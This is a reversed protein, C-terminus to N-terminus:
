FPLMGRQERCEIDIGLNSQTWRTMEPFARQRTMGAAALGNIGFHMGERLMIEIAPWEGDYSAAPYLEATPLGIHRAAAFSWATAEADGCQLLARSVLNETEGFSDPNKEFWEDIIPELCRDVDGDIQMRFIDPIIAVHGAEHLIDGFSIPTKKSYLIEGKVIRVGPIFEDLLLDDVPHIAIGIDHLFAEVADFDQKVTTM